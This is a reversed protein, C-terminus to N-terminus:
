SSDRIHAFSQGNPNFGIYIGLFGVSSVFIKAGFGFGLIANRMSIDSARGGIAGCDAFLVGDLGFGNTIQNNKM